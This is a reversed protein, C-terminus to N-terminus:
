GHEDLSWTVSWPPMADSWGPHTEHLVAGAPRPVALPGPGLNALLGLARGGALRWAMRLGREGLRESRVVRLEGEGLWPALKEARLRLLERTRAHWAAHAPQDLEGWDLRSRAFTAPDLPDPVVALDAFFARFEQRRGDRVAEALEGAFDCFFLFPTRAGWEEGMFLLPVHPSLLLLAQFAQVAEAPALATLREGLARNGIQDHNQLFDVFALPPLDASPEGRAAGGAHRSPEGQYVFGEALGRRLREMPADAFDQYYGAREGTLLVHAAHHLDDNWQAEYLRRGLVPDARLLAARNRENELVLHVQHPVESRVRRALEVLFHTESEDHIAHVADLRLGDFRYEELWYLANHLYFERVVPVRFDIAAGWPTALDATFFGPAYQALMNGAPGFHNDVVDLLVMLGLGHAADVLAKLEEPTGYARDPAFPLVGDYGWNHRGIADAVPMLEVATVGLGALHPLREMVGAFTGAPTFTGVHLEYIAAQCWPRGQWGTCRWRYAGPDVVLSPGDADEAQARSAPDAVRTGDPLVFRYREGAEAGTVLEHWGGGAPRMALEQERGGLELRVSEVAPAWLRFRVRGDGDPQAGFPMRHGAEAM